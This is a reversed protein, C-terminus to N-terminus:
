YQEEYGSDNKTRFYDDRYNELFHTLKHDIDRVRAAIDLVAKQCRVELNDRSM